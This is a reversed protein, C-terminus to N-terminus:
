TEDESCEVRTESTTADVWVATIVHRGGIRGADLQVAGLRRGGYSTLSLKSRNLSRDHSVM